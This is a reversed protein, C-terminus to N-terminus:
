SAPPGAVALSYTEATLYKQAARQVDDRTASRVIEPYRALFDDGLQYLEINQLTAAIGDSTELRIPLLGVLHSQVDALERQTVPEDQLRRIEDLASAIARQANAPNVGARISWLADGLSERMSAAAYYALGQRDRINDGLRGMLGMGGLIETAQDLAYFDPHRRPIVKFGLAIDAQSKDALAFDARQAADPHAATMDPMAFPTAPAPWDGVLAELRDLATEAEIDGVACLILADPRFLRAHCALLDDRTVAEITPRYGYPPHRLPHHQPYVLHALERSAVAATDDDLQRLRTLTEGRAKALEDDPFAPDRLLSVALESVHPWHAALCKARLSLSEAGGAIGLAAGLTDLRDYIQEYTLTTTAKLAVAATLSALGEAGPPDLAAGGVLLGALVVTGTGPNEAALLRAGNPL